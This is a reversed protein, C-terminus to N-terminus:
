KQAPTQRAALVSLAQRAEQLPLFVQFHKYDSGPRAPNRQEEELQRIRERLEPESMHELNAM